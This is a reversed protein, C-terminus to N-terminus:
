GEVLAGTAALRAIVREEVSIRALGMAVDDQPLDSTIM